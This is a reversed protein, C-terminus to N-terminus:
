VKRRVLRDFFHVPKEHDTLPDGAALPDHKGEDVCDGLAFPQEVTAPDRDFGGFNNKWEYAVLIDILESQGGQKVKKMETHLVDLADVVAPGFLSILYDMPIRPKSFDINGNEDIRAPNLPPVYFVNPGTEFEPHLPVAAKWKEVLKWIPGDQDDRYGVFRLRGPCQRACAPAVGKEIRPFCFICKQVVKKVHNFYIKKYPCATMCFRYGRCRDENVVVIGDQERKEIAGRPCAAICAAHTCHNCIRPLYFSYANPYEGAGQDEDWNPGWQPTDGKPRLHEQTGHGGTFVDEHNFEWADGFDRRVPLKGDQAQGNRFGGGSNEWGKPTGKGPQTNVTNWWMYDMGDERTWLQKCAISCTQCGICKNLDMVMALQRQSM